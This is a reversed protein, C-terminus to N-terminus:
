WDTKLWENMKAAVSSGNLGFDLSTGAYWGQPSRFGEFVRRNTLEKLASKLPDPAHTDLLDMMDPWILSKINADLMFAYFLNLKQPPTSWQIEGPKLRSQRILLMTEFMKVIEAVDASLSSADVKPGASNVQNILAFAKFDLYEQAGHSQWFDIIPQHDPGYLRKEFEQLKNKIDFHGRGTSMDILENLDDEFKILQFQTELSLIKCASVGDHITKLQAIVNEANQKKADGTLNTDATYAEGALTLLFSMSDHRPHRKQDHCLRDIVSPIDIHSLFDAQFSRFIDARGTQYLLRASRQLLVPVERRDPFRQFAIALTKADPLSVRDLAGHSLSQQIENVYLLRGALDNRMAYVWASTIVWFLATGVLFWQLNKLVFYAYSQFKDLFSAPLLKSGAVLIAGVASLIGVAGTVIKDTQFFVIWSYAALAIALLQSLLVFVLGAQLTGGM